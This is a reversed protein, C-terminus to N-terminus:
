WTGPVQYSALEHIARDVRTRFRCYNRIKRGMVYSYPVTSKLKKWYIRLM